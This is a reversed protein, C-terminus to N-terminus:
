YFLMYIISYYRVQTVEAVTPINKSVKPQKLITNEIDSIMCNLQLGNICTDFETNNNKYKGFSLMKMYSCLHEKTLANVISIEKNTKQQQQECWTAALLTVSRFINGNSWTVVKHGHEGGQQLKERLCSVTTGKGTGSLGVIVIVLGETKSSSNNSKSLIIDAVQEPTKGLVDITIYLEPIYDPDIVNKSKAYDIGKQLKQEDEDDRTKTLEGEYKSLLEFERNNHFYEIIVNSTDANQKELLTYDLIIPSTSFVSGM